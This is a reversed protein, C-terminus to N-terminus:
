EITISNQVFSSLLSELLEVLIFLVKLWAKSKYLRKIISFHTGRLLVILSSGLNEINMIDARIILGHNMFKAGWLILLTVNRNWFALVCKHSSKIISVIRSSSCVIHFFAIITISLGPHVRALHHKLRSRLTHQVTIRLLSERTTDLWAKILLVQVCFIHRDLRIWVEAISLRHRTSIRPAAENPVVLTLHHWFGHSPGCSILIENILM